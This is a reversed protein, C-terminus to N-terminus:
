PLPALRAAIRVTFSAGAVSRAYRSPITFRSAVARGPEPTRARRVTSWLRRGGSTMRVSISVQRVNSRWRVRVVRRSPVSVRIVQLSNPITFSAVPSRATAAGTAELSTVSWWYSGAWLPRPPRWTEAGPELAENAVVKRELLGGTADTPPLSAVTIELASEGPPLSWRFVPYSTKVTAGDSPALPRPAAAAPIAHLVLVVGAVGVAAGTRRM